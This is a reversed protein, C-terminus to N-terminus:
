FIKLQGNKDRWHNIIIIADANFGKDAKDMFHIQRDIVLACIIFVLSITFQFVILAKRLNIKSSAKQFSTCNV